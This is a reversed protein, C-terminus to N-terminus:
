VCFGPTKDVRVTMADAGLASLPSHIVKRQVAPERYFEPESFTALRRESRSPPRDDSPPTRDTTRPTSCHPKALVLIVPAPAHTNERGATPPNSM